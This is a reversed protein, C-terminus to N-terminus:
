YSTNNEKKHAVNTKARRTFELTLEYEHASFFLFVCQGVVYLKLFIHRPFDHKASAAVPSILSLRSAQDLIKYKM